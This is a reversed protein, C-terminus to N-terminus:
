PRSSPSARRCPCRCSRRCRCAAAFGALHEDLLHRPVSTVIALSTFIWTSNLGAAPRRAVAQDAVLVAHERLSSKLSSLFSAPSIPAPWVTVGAAQCRDHDGIPRLRETRVEPKGRRHRLRAHQQAARLVRGLATVARGGRARPEEAALIGLAIAGLEDLQHFQRGRQRPRLRGPPLLSPSSMLAYALIATCSASIRMTGERATRFIRSVLNRSGCFGVRRRSYTRYASGGPRPPPLCMSRDGDPRPFWTPAEPAGFAVM